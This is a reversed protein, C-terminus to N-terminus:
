MKTVFSIALSEFMFVPVGFCYSSQVTLLYWNIMGDIDDVVEGMEDPGVFVPVCLEDVTYLLQLLEM